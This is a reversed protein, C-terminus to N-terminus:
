HGQVRPRGGDCGRHLLFFDGPLWEYIEESAWPAASARPDDPRQGEAYSEGEARWKGVFAALRRHAASPQPLKQVVKEAM